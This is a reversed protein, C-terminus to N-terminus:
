ISLENFFCRLHFQEIPQNLMKQVVENAWHKKKVFSGLGLNLCRKSLLYFQFIPQKLSKPPVHDNKMNKTSCPWKEYKQHFVTMKWLKTSCLWKEYKQHFATMWTKQHFVTTKWIETSCSLPHFYFIPFKQCFKMPLLSKPPVHSLIFILCKFKKSLVEWSGNFPFNM